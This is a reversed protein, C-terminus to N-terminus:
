KFKSFATLTLVRWTRSRRKRYSSPSVESSLVENIDLATATLYAEGCDSDFWECMNLTYPLSERSPNEITM